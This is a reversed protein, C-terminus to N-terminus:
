FWYKLVGNVSFVDPTDSSSILYRANGGLSFKDDGIDKLPVDFGLNPMYGVYVLDNAYARELMPGVGLGLYSDRIIPINGGMNYSAKVLAKTRILEPNQGEGDYTAQSIEVGLGFPIYPQYGVDIGYEINSDYSGEPMSHGAIIGVHPQYMEGNEVASPKPFTTQSEGVDQAYAQSMVFSGSLALVAAFMYSMVSM